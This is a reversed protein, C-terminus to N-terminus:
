GCYTWQSRTTTGCWGDGNRILTSVKGKASWGGTACAAGVNLDKTAASIGLRSVDLNVVPM